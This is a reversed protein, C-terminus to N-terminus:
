GSKLYLVIHFKFFKSDAFGRLLLLQYILHNLLMHFIILFISLTLEMIVNLYIIINYLPRMSLAIKSFLNSSYSSDKQIRCACMSVSYASEM